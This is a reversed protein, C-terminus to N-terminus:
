FEGESSDGIFTNGAKNFLDRLKKGFGGKEPKLETDDDDYPSKKPKPPQQDNKTTENTQQQV